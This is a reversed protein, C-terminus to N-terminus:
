EGFEMRCPGIKEIIAALIPDSKKLHLIAKRHNTANRPKSKQPLTREEFSLPLKDRCAFTFRVFLSRAAVLQSRALLQFGSEPRFTSIYTTDPPSQRATSRPRSTTGAASPPRSKKTSAM